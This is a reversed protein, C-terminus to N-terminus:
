VCVQSSKVEHCWGQGKICWPKLDRTDPRLKMKFDTCTGSPPTTKGCDVLDTSPTPVPGSSGLITLDGGIHDNNQIVVKSMEQGDQCDQSPLEWTWAGAYGLKRSIVGLSKKARQLTKEAIGAKRADKLVENSNVPGVALTEMLFSEADEAASKEEPSSPIALLGDATHKSTGGWAIVPIGNRDEIAYTLSPPLIALNSKVGALIRKNEDEPSKAILLGIRALGIIGISGGGRYISRSSESKNLHRVVIVAVGEKEAMQALPALARRIDQDKFSNTNGGLYGMLPDIIVIKANVKRCALAIHGIDEVTPFRLKGEIDPVGQLAVVRSKDGGAAELRLVVTDALGDELTLLVAGGKECRYGDPMERGTTIRAVSDITFLSKGLGPDGDLLAIKGLAIRGPWLWKVREPTVTELRILGPLEENRPEWEPTNKIIEILQEKTGGKSIWNSVDGKDPLGPLEVVRVTKAIGHLNIAVQLAHKHGPEDNDPLLVIDKGRFCENYEGRWKGAGQANCSAVLGIGKLSLVDKEGEVIIVSKATIVAPLNFPVLQVGQLNWIWGGKGDPRRQKFSKPEYRVVQFILNEADDTYDYIQTIKPKPGTSLGAVDALVNFATRYDTGHRKMHFDFISGGGCGALCNWQGTTLNLSLSPNTDEHFCCLAMAKSSGNIKLSPLADTYFAEIDLKDLVDRKTIM